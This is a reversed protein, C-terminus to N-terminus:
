NLEVDGKLAANYSMKQCTVVLSQHMVSLTIEIAAKYVATVRWVGIQFQGDM